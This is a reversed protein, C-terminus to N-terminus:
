NKRGHLVPKNYVSDVFKKWNVINLNIGIVKIKRLFVVTVNTDWYPFVDFIYMSLKLLISYIVAFVVADVYSVRISTECGETIKM